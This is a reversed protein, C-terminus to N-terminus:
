EKNTSEIGHTNTAGGDVVLSEGNVFDALPSVLYLVADGIDQPTGVRGVPTEAAYEEAASSEFMGLDDHTMSTEVVGPSVDNVRIGHPALSAALAYTMLRLAGMSASYVVGNGRGVIGSVSAVNVISGDRDADIMREAALQSAFFPGKVNIDMIRDFDDVTEDLLHKDETIGANNVLISVGGLAEAADFVNELQNLNTVDCEVFEGRQGYESEILEHTPKGGGRPNEQIDAIIVDASYEALTKSIARGNGSAGGTVVAVDDVLWDVM